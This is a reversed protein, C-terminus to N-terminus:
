QGPLAGLMAEGRNEGVLGPARGVGPGQRNVEADWTSQETGLM